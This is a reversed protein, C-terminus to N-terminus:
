HRRQGALSISYIVGKGIGRRRLKGIQVLRQLDSKLTPRKVQPLRSQIQGISLDEKSIINLLLREREERNLPSREGAHLSSDQGTLVELITQQTALLEEAVFSVFSTTERSADTAELTELYKRRRAM